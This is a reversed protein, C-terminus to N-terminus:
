EPFGIRGGGPAPSAWVPLRCREALTVLVDWAGSADVDPGAVLVPDAAAALREALNRVADPDASARGTVSREIAHRAGDPDPEVAWDDMPISLFVPGRPPLSAAHCARGLAAP